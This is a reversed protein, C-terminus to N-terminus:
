GMTTAVSNEEKKLAAVAERPVILGSETVTLNPELPLKHAVKEIIRSNWEDFPICHRITGTRAQFEEIWKAQQMYCQARNCILGDCHVCYGRQTPHGLIHLLEEPPHEDGYSWMYQCHVCQRLEFEQKRLEGDFREVHGSPHYGHIM